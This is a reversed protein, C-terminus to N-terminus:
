GSARKGTWMGANLGWFRVMFKAAQINNRKEKELRFEVWGEPGEEPGKCDRVLVRLKM